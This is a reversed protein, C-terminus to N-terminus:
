IKLRRPAPKLIDGVESAAGASEFLPTLHAKYCKWRKVSTKYIPQRGQWKSPTRISRDQDKYHLCKASWDLKLFDLIRRVASERDSVVDEYDITMIQSGFIAIWHKMLRQYQLYYHAIDGLDFSWNHEASFSEIFCSVCTDFMDRKAHVIRATPYLYLIMGVQSFNFPMKDIIHRADADIKELIQDYEDQLRKQYASQLRLDWDDCRRGFENHLSLGRRELGTFYPLEGAGEILPHSALMHELLTTGSRPMGVVFVPRVEGSDAPETHSLAPTAYTAILNDIYVERGARDYAAGPRLLQNSRKFCDFAQDYHQQHDFYKGLAQYGRSKESNPYTTDQELVDQLNNLLDQPADERSLSVLSALAPLYDPKADLARRYEDLAVPFEGNEEYVTGLEHRIRPSGPAATAATSLLTRAEMWYSKRKRRMHMSLLCRALSAMIEPSKPLYELAKRFHPEAEEARNTRLLCIGLYQSAHPAAANLTLARRSFTLALVFDERDMFHKCLEISAEFDLADVWDPDHAIETLTKSRDM